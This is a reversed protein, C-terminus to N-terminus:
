DVINIIASYAKKTAVLVVGSKLVNVATDDIYRLKLNLVPALANGAAFDWPKLHSIYGVQKGLLVRILEIGASGLVRTGLSIEEIEQFHYVNRVLMPGSLGILGDDLEINQPQKVEIENNFVKGIGKGGHVLVDRMIDYIYGLLPQGDEYLAIMVAFDEQQKVFNMTGDIPDIVWMLGKDNEIDSQKEEALIKSDPLLQKLKQIIEAQNERDLQTVLDRRSTKEDVKLHETMRNLIFQRDVNLFNVIEADLRILDSKDIKKM